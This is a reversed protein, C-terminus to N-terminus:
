KGNQVGKKAEMNKFVFCFVFFTNIVTFICPTFLNVGLENEFIMGGLILFPTTFIIWFVWLLHKNKM